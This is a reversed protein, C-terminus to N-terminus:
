LCDRYKGPTTGEYKKFVRIFGIDNAYGVKQAIQSFTLTKDRMLRKAQEIRIRTIYDTINMGMQKKFFSSLYQPTMHFEDAISTLSLMGDGYREAIYETIKEALRRGHDSRGTKMYRCLSLFWHGIKANMEEVTTCSSLEKVPNFDKGFVDNYCSDMPSMIKWLTSVMDLFLCRGLEPTMRRSSFHMDYINALLKEANDVDGSKTFNILQIETDIPYYYHREASSIERYHIVASQGKFMKYDLASLAEIYSEGIRDLGEHVCGIALTVYTQFRNELLQKLRLAISDLDADAYQLRDDNLNVLIALRDRDLEVTYGWNQERVLDNSVNCIVFRVLARQRESQDPSFRSFDDIDILIVAFHDSVLRIDMFQLSDETITSRDVHGRIFRSLFNAQIVPTQRSLISRLEKEEDLTVQITEKIFDYENAVRQEPLPKEKRLVRVVDRLPSYNRYAMLCIAAAGGVLCIALLSLAWYKLTDVREMYVNKPMTLIYKWGNQASVTYSVIMDVGHANYEYPEGGSTLKSAIGELSLAQGSALVPVNDRNLIFISSQYPSEIKSLVNRIQSADILIVLAGRIGNTEAPPLSQVYTITELTGGPPTEYTVKMYSNYHLSRLTRERWTEFDMGIPHYLQSFLTYADTKKSPTLVTDSDAFYVYYDSVLKSMNQYRAMYDNMFDVFKYIDNLNLGDANNLLLQLRPNFAIQQSVQEIDKLNMDMMLRLQELMALNSRNANEVMITETKTYLVSGIAVPLLFVALYSMLLTVFVSRRMRRNIRM